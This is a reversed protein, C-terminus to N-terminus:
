WPKNRERVSMSALSPVRGKGSSQIARSVIPPQAHRRPSIPLPLDPEGQDRDGHFDIRRRLAARRDGEVLDVLGAALADFILLDHRADARDLGLIDDLTIFDRLAMIDGEVVLLQLRHLQLALLRQLEGLEDVRVLDVRKIVLLRIIHHRGVVESLLLRL